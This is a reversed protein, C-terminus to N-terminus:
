TPREKNERKEKGRKEERYLILTNTPTSSTAAKERKRLHLVLM